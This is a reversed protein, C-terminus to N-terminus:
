GDSGNSGDSGDNGAMASFIVRVETGRPPLVERHPVYTDDDMGGQHPNDLIANGLHSHWISILNRTLDAVYVEEGTQEDAAFRSGLYVWGEREMPKGTTRDLLLDELRHSETKGDVTWEVDVRVLPGEPPYYLLPEEESGVDIAGPPAGPVKEMVRYPTGGTLGLSLLGANLLSPKCDVYLLSEHDRGGEGVAAFEVLAETQCISGRAIVRKGVDDLEIGGGALMTKLEGMDSEVLQQLRREASEARIRSIQTALNDRVTIIQDIADDYLEMSDDELKELRAAMDALSALKEDIGALTAELEARHAQNSKRLEERADVLASEFGRIREELGAVAEDNSSGCGVLGGGALLLVIVPLILTRSKM